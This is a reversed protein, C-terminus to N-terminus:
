AAEKTMMKDLKAKAAKAWGQWKPIRMTKGQVYVDYPTLRWAHRNKVKYGARRCIVAIKKYGYWAYLKAYQIVVRVIQEALPKRVPGPCKRESTPISKRYWSSHAIGLADLIGTIRVISNKSVM